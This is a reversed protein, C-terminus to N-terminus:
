ECLQAPNLKESAPPCLTKTGQQSNALPRGQNGVVHHAENPLECNDDGAVGLALSPPVLLSCALHSGCDKQLMIKSIVDM